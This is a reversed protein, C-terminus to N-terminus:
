ALVKYFEFELEHQIELLDEPYVLDRLHKPLEKEVFRAFADVAMEALHDARTQREAATLKPM